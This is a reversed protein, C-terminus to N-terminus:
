EHKIYWVISGDRKFKSAITLIFVNGKLWWFNSIFVINVFYFISCNTIPQLIIFYKQITSVFIKKRSFNKEVHKRNYIPSACITTSMNKVGYFKTYAVIIHNIGQKWPLIFVIFIQLFVDLLVLMRNQKLVM